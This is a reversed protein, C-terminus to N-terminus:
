AFAASISWWIYVNGVIALIAGLFGFVRGIGAVLSVIAFFGAVASFPVAVLALVGDQAGLDAFADIILLLV